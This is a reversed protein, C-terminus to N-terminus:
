SIGSEVDPSLNFLSMFASTSEGGEQKPLQDPHAVDKGDKLNDLEQLMYKTRSAFDWLFFLTRHAPSAQESGTVPKWQPHSQLATILKTLSDSAASQVAQSPLPIRAM